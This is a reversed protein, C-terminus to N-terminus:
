LLKKMKVANKKDNEFFIESRSHKIMSVSVARKVVTHVQPSIRVDIHINDVGLVLRDLSFNIIYRKLPLQKLSPPKSLFQSFKIM